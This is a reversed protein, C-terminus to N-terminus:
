SRVASTEKGCQGQCGMAYIVGRGTCQLESALVEEMRTPKESSDVSILLTKSGRLWLALSVSLTVWKRRAIDPIGTRESVKRRVLWSCKHVFLAAASRTPQGFTQDSCRGTDIIAICIITFKPRKPEAWSASSGIIAWEAVVFVLHTKFIEWM